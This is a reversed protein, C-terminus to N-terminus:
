NAHSSAHLIRNTAKWKSSVATDTSLYLGSLWDVTIGSYKQMVAMTHWDIYLFIGSPLFCYGPMLLNALRVLWCPGLKFHCCRTCDIVHCLHLTVYLFPLFFLINVGCQPDSPTNSTPNIMGPLHMPNILPASRRFEKYDAMWCMDYLETLQFGDCCCCVSGSERQLGRMKHRQQQVFPVSSHWHSKGSHIM